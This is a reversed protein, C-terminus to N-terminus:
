RLSRKLEDLLEVRQVAKVKIAKMPRYVKVNENGKTADMVLKKFKANLVNTLETRNFGNIPVQSSRMNMGGVNSGHRVDKRHNSLTAAWPKSVSSSM